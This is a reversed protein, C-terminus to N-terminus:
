IGYKESNIYKIYDDNNIINGIISINNFMGRKLKGKCKGYPANTLPDGEYWLGGFLYFGTDDKINKNTKYIFKDNCKNKDIAIWYRCNDNNFKIIDGNHIEM